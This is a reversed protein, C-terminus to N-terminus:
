HWLLSARHGRRRRDRARPRLRTTLPARDLAYALSWPDPPRVCLRLTWTSCCVDAGTKTGSRKWFETVARRPIGQESFRLRGGLGKKSTDQSALQKHPRAHNQRWVAAFLDNQGACSNAWSASDVRAFKRWRQPVNLGTKLCHERFSWKQVRCVSCGASRM